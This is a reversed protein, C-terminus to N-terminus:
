PAATTSSRASVLSSIAKARRASARARQHAGPGDVEFWAARGLRHRPFLDRDIGRLDTLPGAEIFRLEDGEVDLGGAVRREEDELDAGLAKAQVAREGEEVREDIAACGDVGVRLLAVVDVPRHEDARRLKAIRAAREKSERVRCHEDLVAVVCKVGPEDTAAELARELMRDDVGGRERPEHELQRLTLRRPERPQDLFQAEVDLRGM